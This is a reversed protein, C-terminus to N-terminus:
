KSYIIVIYGNGGNGSAAPADGIGSVYYQDTRNAALRGAGQELITDIGTVYGSGGGGGADNKSGGGGFYGGGGGGGESLGAGGKLAEGGSAGGAAQTGGYGINSSATGGDLGNQGTTGGGPGGNDSGNKFSSGGGGGAIILANAQAVSARFVGSYGGGSSSAKNGLGGGGYAATGDTKGGQGVVVFLTEESTVSIEAQTFGGGGGYRDTGDSGGAAGWVRITAKACGKSVMINQVSGTYSYTHAFGECNSLVTGSSLAAVARVGQPTQIRMKSARYDDPELLPVGYIAGNKAFRLKGQPSNPEECGARVVKTGDYFRLDCDYLGTIIHAWLYVYNAASAWNLSGVRLYYTTNATLGTVTLTSVPVLSTFSSKIVGTFDPSTSAELTYGEATASSPTPPLPLWNVTMSSSYLGALQVGNVALSLTSTAINSTYVSGCSNGVSLYRTYTTNPLLGAETYYLTGASLTPSQGSGGTSSYVKYNQAGSAAAWVWKITYPAIQSGYFYEPLVAATFVSTSNLTGYNGAAFGTGGATSIGVSCVSGSQTVNVGIRGGAGGGGYNTSGDVDLGGDGGNVRIEGAGSFYAATINVVGGSGGGSAGDTSSLPGRGGAEGGASIIGNLVITGVTLMVGGGGAGGPGIAKNGSGGGSGLNTPGALTDYAVGGVSGGAGGGGVGGHGAGGGGTASAGGGGPGYGATRAVYGGGDYGLGDALIYAGDNIDLTGVANLLVISSKVALSNDKHTITSGALLTIDGNVTVPHTSGFIFEAGRNLTINGGSAIGTSLTLSVGRINCFCGCGSSSGLTLTNYSITPSSSNVQVEGRIISVADSAGPVGSPSWNSATYWNNDSLGQWVKGSVSDAKEYVATGEGGTGWVLESKYKGPSGGTVSVNLNCAEDSASSHVYIRGGAGGVGGKHARDTTEGGAGGNASLTGSGSITGASIQIGGGSGGSGAANGNTGDSGNASITGGLYISDATLHVEGGGAGGAATATGGGSGPMTIKNVLGYASGGAADSGNAGKNGYGGGGGSNTGKAGGGPGYGAASVGGDYGLGSVTVTSDAQLDIFGGAKVDLVKSRVAGTNDGHTLKGGGAVTLSELLVLQWTTNQTLTANNMVHIYGGSAIGTSLVLNPSTTGDANGLTLGLFSVGPQTADATVTATMDIAVNCASSPVIDPSWNAATHWKGDGGGGDWVIDGSMHTVGGVIGGIQVADEDTNTLSAMSVDSKALSLNFSDGIVLNALDAVLIYNIGSATVTFPTSFTLTGASTNVVGAGGVQTTEGADKFIDGDTDVYVKINSWDGDSVGSVDALRVVLQNVQMSQMYTTLRFAFLNVETMNGVALSNSRQGGTNNAIAATSPEVIGTSGNTGTCGRAGGAANIMGAFDNTNYYNFDLRLLGGGGGGGCETTNPDTGGTGGAARISGNGSLTNAILHIAGGAGGGGAAYDDYCTDWCTTPCSTDPLCPDCAYPNCSYSTDAAGAGGAAGNASIVGNVTAVGNVNLKILGGGSGGVGPSATGGGSGPLAPANFADNAVGGAAGGPGGAGGHGGGGGSTYSSGAGGKSTGLYGPNYGKGDANLQGGAQVDLTGGVTINLWRALATTNAGHTLLGGNQVVLNSTVNWTGLSDGQLRGGVTLNGGITWYHSVPQLLLSGAPVTLDATTTLSSIRLNNYGSFSPNVKFTASSFTLTSGVVSLPGGATLNYVTVGAELTNGTFLLGLGGNVSLTSISVMRPSATINAVTMSSTVSIATQTSVLNVDVLTMTDITLSVPDSFVTSNSNTFAVSSVIVRGNPDGPKRYYITGEAGSKGATAASQGGRAAINVTSSDSGTVVLGIRGGAGGGGYSASTSLCRGGTATIAGSGSLAGATINVGGGSGGGGGKTTGAGDTGNVNIQGNLSFTGGVNLVVLGGGSGGGYATAGNGASGGSGPQAPSTLSDYYFGGPSKTTDGNDGGFGGHGGGVGSMLTGLTCGAGPGYGCNAVAGVPNGAYGLGAAAISAGAQLDFNGGVSMNVAATALNVINSHRLVAGSYMTLNGSIALQSTVGSVLSSRNYITITEGHAITTSFTLSPAVTGGSNGLTLTKFSIASSVANVSVDTNISVLSDTNPVADPFWNNPENWNLTGAGGDWLVGNTASHVAPAVSGTFQMPQKATDAASVVTINPVGLNITFGDGIALNNIDARLIYNKGGNGFTFPNSFTITGAASNVVGAGGVTITESLEIQSNGNADEVIQINAWDGDSIGTVASLQFVLQSVQLSTDSLDSLKFGFLNAGQINGVLLSNNRQGGSNDSLLAMSPEITGVAGDSANGGATESRAGGAVSISGTFGNQTYSNIDLSIRGGGGGGATNTSGDVDDGAAGGNATIVGAGLFTNAILHISGGSGGGGASSNTNAGTGATGAGGNVALTGNVTASGGVSLRLLGGGMGGAGGGTGGGSGMDAPITPSDYVAGGSADTPPIIAVLGPNGSTPATASGTGGQGASSNYDSDGTNAATTGSGQSTSTNTGSLYSSGGGGGGPGGDGGDGGGGGGGGYYGGGGGGAGNEGDNLGGNGGGPAGGAVGGGTGTNGNSGGGGQYASGAAGDGVSDALGGVGGAAQTGGGGGGGVRVGTGPFGNAGILGGGPGGAGGNKGSNRDGGGGGGGAGAQILFTAGRKVATYGGGGGGSQDSTAALGGGGVVITLTEGPTVTIDAQAFGGGGGSGGIGAGAKGRGGGGGGGWVKATITTVGPPVVYSSFDYSGGSGGRGGHGGGSGGGSATGIGHGPGNDASYGKASGQIQGGNQIDLNGTITLNVRRTMADTNASHAVVGGNQVTLDGTVTWDSLTNQILSGAVTLNGGVAWAGYSEQTIATNAPVTLAATTVFSSVSVNNYGSFSPNVKFTASSFTLTSGVVSLPGGATLNYVTVGAELTNGTFLLGLGGNVSLTSISVMRPSATINAVTMSSTVSIATQTSVLNVDVLTMTDITLSVPDSFVTSNSNTFAVSSVIVRGNPDGPKRYYITGEAGSKGATAASQGGRAAINVTSSDSGTVVLGIRGGAGGGGYSASTSLCRGGTATIAGSGSLAGATINVGGGSGGGGGKTTGAGDTGNVNIQGNLSFTGGVNLVVLGGGSGGGYATAGNGASGGSGPQAPSTLSDYYFGGPSKTTDGNDGGFGGHGGGVGSMLTGLTCGAGPGYGCNAVAGVPNGAYGLGAAAISAGAQLDFNGGVSMNVAATALNVINSHRLVAGSYMTLNGSIALQSTVGSILSSRNYITIASGSTIGTSLVLSSAYIGSMDGITLTNFSVGPQAADATVAVNADITVLSQATPVADPNWNQATHWKGDGGGGDWSLSYDAVHTVGTVTGSFQLVPEEPNTASVALIDAHPLNLTFTDGYVLNILDAILIYNKDGAAAAFATGFTITGAATNVAGAGGVQTTEGLDRFGNGNTDEYLKVNSWDGDAVGTIASLRFVVQSVQVPASQRLRFGFLNAGSMDGITISNARQGGANNSFTVTSPEIAGLAGNAANGGAAASRAGGTVDLTGSFDNRTYSNIDLRLLGGGGGGATDYSGDTDNGAAGGNASITGAGNLANAVLYVAGGAGGGGASSSTNGGAGAAGSGGGSSLTGNVSATGGVSLLILGGGTGGAATGSGGGSGLLAPANFSDNASGGAATNGGGGGAGGHGGGGGGDAGGGGGAGTGNSASYGKANGHIQGGSQIDLTGTVSINLRRALATTNANHTVVGGNQVTLGGAVSWNGLANQVLTGGVTLNGGVAWLGSVDQTIAAGAPVTLASTTTLTSITLNNTGSFGPNASFSASSVTVSSNSVFSISGGAKLASITMTSNNITLSGSSDVSLLDIPNNVISLSGQSSISSVSLGTNYGILAQGSTISITSIATNLTNSSITLGTGGVAIAGLQVQELSSDIFAITMSSLATIATQTSIFNVNVLTITDIVVSAPESVVTPERATVSNTTILVEGMGGPKKYYITGHAGPTGSGGSLSGGLAMINLASTDGASVSVAVRGGAGSGANSVAGTILGGNASIVGSGSLYSATINVTGGSGGGSQRSSGPTLGNAGDANILGNLTFTGGVNVIVLGGGGGGFEADNDGGAGGSGHQQPNILSGYYGGRAAETDQGNRGGYGGHGGGTGGNNGSTVKCGGGPGYGCGVVKPAQGGFGLGSVAISAGAQLDFNGTILTNVAATALSVINSHRLVAGSYMTLNGAIKIQETTGSVLSAKNYVIVNGGSAITTSLTLSTTITGGSNGLTLTNFNISPSSVRVNVAAALNITVDDATTPVADASWNKATYWNLDGGGGDWSIAAAALRGPFVAFLLFVSIRLCALADASISSKKEGYLLFKM